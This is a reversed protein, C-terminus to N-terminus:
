HTIKHQLANVVELTSNTQEIGNTHEESAEQSRAKAHLANLSQDYRFAVRKLHKSQSNQLITSKIRRDLDTFKYAFALLRQTTAFWNVREGM